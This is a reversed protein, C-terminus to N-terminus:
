FHSILRVNWLGPPVLFVRDYAATLFRAPLREVFCRRVYHIDPFLGVTPEALRISVTLFIVFVEVEFLSSGGVVVIFIDGNEAPWSVLEFVGGELIVLISVKLM